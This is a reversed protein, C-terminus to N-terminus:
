FEFIFSINEAYWSISTCNLTAVSLESLLHHPISTRNSFIIVSLMNSKETVTVSIASKVEKAIRNLSLILKKCIELECKSKSSLFDSNQIISALEKELNTTETIKTYDNYFLETAKKNNM